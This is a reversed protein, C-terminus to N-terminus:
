EKSIVENNKVVRAELVWTTGKSAQLDEKLKAEWAKGVKRFEKSAKAWINATEARDGLSRSLETFGSFREQTISIDHSLQLFFCLTM